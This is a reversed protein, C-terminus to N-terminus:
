APLLQAGLMTSLGNSTQPQRVRARPTRLQRHLAGAAVPVQHVARALAAVRQKQLVALAHQVQQVHRARHARPRESHPAQQLLPV